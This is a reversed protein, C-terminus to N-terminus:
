STNVFIHMFSMLSLSVIFAVVSSKAREEDVNWGIIFIFNHITAQNWYSLSECRIFFIWFQKQWIRKYCVEKYFPKSVCQWVEFFNDLPSVYYEMGRMTVKSVSWMGVGQCEEVMKTKFVEFVILTVAELM